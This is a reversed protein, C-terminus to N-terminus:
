ATVLLKGPSKQSFLSDAQFSTHFLCSLKCQPSLRQLSFLTGSCCDFRTQCQWFDDQPVEVGAWTPFLLRGQLSNHAASIWSTPHCRPDWVEPTRTHCWANCGVPSHMLSNYPDDTICLCSYCGCRHQPPPTPQQTIRPSLNSIGAIHRLFTKLINTRFTYNM